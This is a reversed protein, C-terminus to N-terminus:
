MESPIKRVFLPMGKPWLVENPEGCKDYPCMVSEFVEKATGREGVVEFARRCKTCRIRKEM